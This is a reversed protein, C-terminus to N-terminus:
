HLREAFHKATIKQVAILQIFVLNIAGFDMNFNQFLLRISALCGGLLVHVDRADNICGIDIVRIGGKFKGLCQIVASPLLQPNKRNFVNAKSGIHRDATTLMKVIRIGDIFEPKIGHGAALLRIGELDAKGACATTHRARKGEFAFPNIGLLEPKVRGGPLSLQQLHHIIRAAFIAKRIGGLLSQNIRRSLARGQQIDDAALGLLEVIVGTEFPYLRRRTTTYSHIGDGKQITRSLDIVVRRTHDRTCGQSPGGRREGLGINVEILNNVEVCVSIIVVLM